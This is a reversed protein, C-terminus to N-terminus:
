ISLGVASALEPVRKLETLVETDIDNLTLQDGRKLNEIVTVTKDSLNHKEKFPDLGQLDQHEEWQALANNWETVVRSASKEPNLMDQSVIRDMWNITSAFQENPTGIINQLRRASSLDSRWDKREQDIHKKLEDRASEVKKTAQSVQAKLQTVKEDHLATVFAAKDPRVADRAEELAPAATPETHGFAEDAIERYFQLEAVAQKLTKMADNVRNATQRATEVKQDVNKADEQRKAQTEIRSVADDLTLADSM